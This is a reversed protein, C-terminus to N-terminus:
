LGLRWMADRAEIRALFVTLGSGVVGAGTVLSGGLDRGAILYGCLFALAAGMLAAFVMLGRWFRLPARSSRMVM